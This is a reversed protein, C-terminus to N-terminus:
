HHGRCFGDGCACKVNDDDDGCCPTSSTGYSEEEYKKQGWFEKHCWNKKDGKVRRSLFNTFAKNDFSILSLRCQM